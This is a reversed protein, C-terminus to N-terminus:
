NEKSGVVVPLQRSRDQDVLRIYNNIDYLKRKIKHGNRYSYDSLILDLFPYREKILEVVKETDKIKQTIPYTETFKDPLYIRGVKSCKEELSLLFELSEKIKKDNFVLEKYEDLNMDLNHFWQTASLVRFKDVPISKIVEDMTKLCTFHQIKKENIFFVTYGLQGLVNAWKKLNHTDRSDLTDNNLSVLAQYCYIRPDLLANRYFVENNELRFTVKEWDRRYIRGYVIGEKKPATSNVNKPGQTNAIQSYPSFKVGISKLWKFEKVAARMMEAYRKKHKFTLTKWDLLMKNRYEILLFKEHSQYVTRNKLATPTKRDLFYIPANIFDSDFREKVPRTSIDGGYRRRRYYSRTHNEDKNKSSVTIQLANLQFKEKIKKRDGNTGFEFELRGDSHKHILSFVDNENKFENFNICAQLYNPAEKLREQAYENLHKLFTEFKDKIAQTTKEDYQVSERNASITLEGTNFGLFVTNNIHSCAFDVQNKDLGYIIGDILLNYHDNTLDEEVIKCDEYEYLVKIIPHENEFNIYKPPVDWMATARYVEQEFKSRDDKNKIPVIITTGNRKNTKSENCLYLKGKRGEDIAATYVYEVGDVVTVISFSDTYSFPVKSGIGFGGTQTNDGRKTSAGYNVFIDAVRDPAIGPGEDKFTICLDTTVWINANSDHIAIEIPDPNNVERNADRANTAIERCLSGVPNRYLKSRLIELILGMDEQRIGFTLEKFDKSTKVAHESQQLIM